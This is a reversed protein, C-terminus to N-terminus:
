IINKLVYSHWLASLLVWPYPFHNEWWPHVEHGWCPTSSVKMHCMRAAGLGVVLTSLCM